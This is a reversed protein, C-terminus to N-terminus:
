PEVLSCNMSLIGGDGIQQALSTTASSIVNRNHQGIYGNSIRSRILYNLPDCDTQLLAQQKYSTKSFKNFFVTKM